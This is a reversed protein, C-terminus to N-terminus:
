SRSTSLRLLLTVWMLRPFVNRLLFPCVGIALVTTMRHLYNPLAVIYYIVKPVTAPLAGSLVSSM